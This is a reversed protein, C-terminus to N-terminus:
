QPTMMGPQPGTNRDMAKFHASNKFESYLTFLVHLGEIVNGSVLKRGHNDIKEQPPSVPIDLLLAIIQAYDALPLDIDPTPLQIQQNLAKWLIRVTKLAEEVPEPWVQMLDEIDPMRRTYHVSAPPKKSHLDKINKLWANLAKPDRRLQTADLSRITRPTASSAKTVARLHLDLVSPDSQHVAPEDLITLGLM